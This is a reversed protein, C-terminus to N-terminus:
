QRTDSQVRNLMGYTSVRISTQCDEQVRAYADGRGQPRQTGEHRTRAEPSIAQSPVLVSNSRNSEPLHGWVERSRTGTRCARALFRKSSMM